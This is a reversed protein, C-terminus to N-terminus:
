ARVAEAARRKEEDRLDAAIVSSELVEEGGIILSLVVLWSLGYLLGAGVGALALGIVARRFSRALSLLETPGTLAWRRRRRIQTGVGDIALWLGAAIAAIEGLEVWLRESGM